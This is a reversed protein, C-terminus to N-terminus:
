ADAFLASFREMAQKRHQEKKKQNISANQASLTFVVLCSETEASKTPAFAATKLSMTPILHFRLPKTRLQIFNISKSYDPSISKNIKDFYKNFLYKILVINQKTLQCNIIAIVM